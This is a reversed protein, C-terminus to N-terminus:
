GDGAVSAQEVYIARTFRDVRLLTGSFTIEDGREVDVDAPLDVIAKVRNSMLASSGIAGIRVTTKTGPEDGFDRDSRYGRSHEVEGTWHVPRGAYDAEFVAEIEHGPRGAGFLDDITAQREAPRPPPPALASRETAAVDRWGDVEPDGPLAAATRELIITAEEPRGLAVLSEAEILQTVVNPPNEDDTAENLEHLADVAEAMDGAELPALAADVPAPDTLLRGSDILRNITAMMRDQNREVRRSEVVISSPTVEAKPWTSFISLLAARRAPTLYQRVAAESAADVIVSEDFRPDGTVIDRGGVFSRMFSLMGQRRFSVAPGAAPFGVTYRTVRYSDDGSGRSIVEARVRVGRVTGSMSPARFLSGSQVALGTRRGVSQWTSTQQQKQFASIAIAVFVIIVFFGM